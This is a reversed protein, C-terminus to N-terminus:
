VDAVIGALSIPEHPGTAVRMVEFHANFEDHEDLENNPSTRSEMAHELRAHSITSITALMIPM